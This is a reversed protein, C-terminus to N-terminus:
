HFVVVQDLYAWARQFHLKTDGYWTCFWSCSLQKSFAFPVCLQSLPYNYIDAISGHGTISTFMFVAIIM